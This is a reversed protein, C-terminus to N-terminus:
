RQFEKPTTMQYRLDSARCQGRIRIALPVSITLPQLIHSVAKRVLQPDQNEKFMVESDWMRLRVYMVLKECDSLTELTQLRSELYPDVSCDRPEPDSARWELAWNTEGAVPRSSLNIIDQTGWQTGDPGESYGSTGWNRDLNQLELKLNQDILDMLVGLNCADVIARDVAERTPTNCRALHANVKPRLQQVPNPHSLIRSYFDGSNGFITLIYDILNCISSLNFGEIVLRNSLNYLMLKWALSCTIQILDIRRYIMTELYWGVVKDIKNRQNNLLVRIQTQFHDYLGYCGIRRPNMMLLERELNSLHDRVKQSPHPILRFDSDGSKKVLFGTEEPLEPLKGEQLYTTFYETALAKRGVESQIDMFGPQCKQLWTTFAVLRRNYVAAPDDFLGMIYPQRHHNSILDLHLFYLCKQRSNSFIWRDLPSSGLDIIIEPGKTKYEYRAKVHSIDRSRAILIWKEGITFPLQQM